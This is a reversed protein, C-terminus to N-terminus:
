WDDLAPRDTERDGRLSARNRRIAIEPETIDDLIYRPTPQRPLRETMMVGHKLGPATRQTLGASSLGVQVPVAYRCAIHEQEKSEKGILSSAITMMADEAVEFHLAHVCKAGFRARAILRAAERCPVRVGDPFPVRVVRDIDSM